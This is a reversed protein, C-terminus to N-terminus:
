SLCSVSVDVPNNLKFKWICDLTSKAHIEDAIIEIESFPNSCTLFALWILKRSALDLVGVFGDSGYSAEGAIVEISHELSMKTTSFGCNNWYLNNEKALLNISTKGGASITYIYPHGWSVEINLMQITEDPFIIGDITPCELHDVFNLMTKM